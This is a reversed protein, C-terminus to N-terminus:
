DFPQTPALERHGAASSSMGRENVSLVGTVLKGVGTADEDDEDSYVAVTLTTQNQSKVAAVIGWVALM